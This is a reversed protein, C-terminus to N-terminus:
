AAVVWEYDDPQMVSEYGDYEDIRYRAGKRVKEIQLKAFRGNAKEGLEEVVKVLLPDHRAFDLKDLITGDDRRYKALGFHRLADSEYEPTVSIGRLEFYRVIAVPSLGFGGHCANYVIKSM